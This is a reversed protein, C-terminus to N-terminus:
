KHINKYLGAMIIDSLHNKYAKVNKLACDFQYTSMTSFPFKLSLYFKISLEHNLLIIRRCRTTIRIFLGTVSENGQELQGRRRVIFGVFSM